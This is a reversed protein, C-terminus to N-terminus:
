LCIGSNMTGGYTSRSISFLDKINIAPNDLYIIVLLIKKEDDINGRTNYTNISYYYHQIFYILSLYDCIIFM